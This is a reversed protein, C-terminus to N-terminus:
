LGEKELWCCVFGIIEECNIYKCCIQACNISGFRLKFDSMLLIRSTKAETEGLVASIVMLGSVLCGCITGVGFGNSIAGATSIVEETIEKHEHSAALLICKACETGERYYRIAQARM